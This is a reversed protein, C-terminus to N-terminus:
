MPEFLLFCHGVLSTNVGKGWFIVSDLFVRMGQRVQVGQNNVIALQGQYSDTCYTNADEWTKKCGTCYLYGMGNYM